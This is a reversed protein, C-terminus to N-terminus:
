LLALDVLTTGLVYQLFKVETKNNYIRWEKDTSAIKGCVAMITSPM